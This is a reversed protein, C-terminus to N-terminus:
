LTSRVRTSHAHLFPQDEPKLETQGAEIKSMDLIENILRLLHEGSRIITRVYGAQGPTLSFDQELLQSFGLVANMPTRIEHSMNALFRSKALNAADALERSLRLARETESRKRVNVVM